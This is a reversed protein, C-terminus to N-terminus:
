RRGNRDEARGADVQRRKASYPSQEAYGRPGGRTIASGSKDALLPLDYLGAEADAAEKIQTRALTAADRITTLTADSPNGGRKDYAEPTVIRAIWRWVIDPVGSPFTVDYRKRLQAYVEARVGGITADLFGAEREELLDVDDGPM